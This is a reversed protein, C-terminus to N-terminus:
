SLSLKWSKEIRCPHYSLKAKKLGPDGMDSERNIYAVGDFLKKAAERNIYQYLGKIDPNAKEFNLVGTDKTLESSIALGEIVGDIKVALGKLDLLAYNELSQYIAKRECGFEDPWMSFKEARLRYWDELFKRCQPLLDEAVDSVELRGHEAYEREFQHILNRKASYKRGSLGALDEKNYIYDDYEPEHEVKFHKELDKGATNMYAEPVFRYQKLESERLIDLLKEPETPGNPSIPLILWRENPDDTHQESIVLGSDTEAFFNNYACNNWVTMVAASYSSLLYNQGSYYKLLLRRDAPTLPVFSFSM